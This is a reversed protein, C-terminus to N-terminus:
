QRCRFSTHNCGHQGVRNPDNFSSDEGTRQLVRGWVLAQCTLGDSNRSGDGHEFKAESPRGYM